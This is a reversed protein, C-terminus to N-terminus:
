RYYIKLGKTVNMNKGENPLKMQSLKVLIEDIIKNEDHANTNSVPAASIQMICLAGLLLCVIESRTMKMMM